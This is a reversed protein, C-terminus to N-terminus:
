VGGKRELTKLGEKYVEAIKKDYTFICVGDPTEVLNNFNWIPIKFYNSLDLIYTKLNLFDEDEVMTIVEKSTVKFIENKM